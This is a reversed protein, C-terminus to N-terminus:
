RLVLKVIESGSGRQAGGPNIVFEATPRGEVMVKKAPIDAQMAPGLNVNAPNAYIVQASVIKSWPFGTIQIHETENSAAGGMVFITVQDGDKAAITNVTTNAVKTSLAAGLYGMSLWKMAQGDADVSYGADDHVLTVTDAQPGPKGTAKTPWVPPWYAAEAVGARAMEGLITMMTNANTLGGSHDDDQLTAMWESVYILNKGSDKKMAAIAPQISSIPLRALPSEKWPNRGTYVHIDLGDVASWAASPIQARMTAIDSASSWNATAFLRVHYGKRAAAEKMAPAFYSLLTAYRRLFEDYHKHAGGVNYWENGIQWDQVRSGYQTVLDAAKAAWLQYSEKTNTELADQTRVVFTVNGDGMVNLIHEPNVGPTSTYNRYSTDLTNNSWEYHESEFGGPFRMLTIGCNSTLSKAFADFSAGPVVYWYNNVGYLHRDIHVGDLANVTILPRVGIAPPAVSQACALLPLLLAAVFLCTM